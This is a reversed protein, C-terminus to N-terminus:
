RKAEKPIICRRNFASQFITSINRRERSGRPKADMRPDMDMREALKEQAM